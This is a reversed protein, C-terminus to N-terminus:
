WRRASSFNRVRCPSGEMKWNARLFLPHVELDSFIENLDKFSSRITRTRHSYFNSRNLDEFINYECRAFLVFYVIKYAYTADTDFHLIGFEVTLTGRGLELRGRDVLVRNCALCPQFEFRNSVSFRHRNELSDPLISLLCFGCLKRATTALLVLSSRM